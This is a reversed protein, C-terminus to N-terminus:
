LMRYTHLIIIIAFIVFLIREEREINVHSHSFLYLLLVAMLIIFINEFYDKWSKADELKEPAYFKAYLQAIIALLFLVKVFFVFYVYGHYLATKQM